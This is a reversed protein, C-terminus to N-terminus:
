VNPAGWVLDYYHKYIIYANENNQLIHRNQFISMHEVSIEKKLGSFHVTVLYKDDITWKDNNKQLNREKINWYAVNYGPHRFIKVNDDFDGAFRLWGQESALGAEPQAQPYITTQFKWWKIFPLGKKSAGLFGSNYNGAFCMTRTQPYLNDEPLPKTIHPIVVLSHGDDLEKQIESYNNYTFTDGDVFICSEFDLKTLVYEIISIRGIILWNPDYISLNLDNPHLVIDAISSDKDDTLHVTTYDPNHEKASNLAINGQKTYKKDYIFCIAKNKM